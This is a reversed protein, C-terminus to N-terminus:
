LDVGTSAGGAHAYATASLITTGVTDGAPIVTGEAVVAGSRLVAGAGIHDRDAVFVDDGVVCGIGNGGEEDVDAAGGDVGDAVARRQGGARRGLRLSM